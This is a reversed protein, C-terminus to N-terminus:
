CTLCSRRHRCSSFRRSFRTRRHLSRRPRTSRPSSTWQRRDQTTTTLPRAGRCSIKRCHEETPSNCRELLSAGLYCFLTACYVRHRGPRSSDHTIAELPYQRASSTRSSPLCLSPHHTFGASRKEVFVIGPHRAERWQRGLAWGVLCRFRVSERRWL